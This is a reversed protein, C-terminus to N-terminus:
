KENKLSSILEELSVTATGNKGVVIGAARNAIRTAEVIDLGAARALTLAATFTDGAGCVDYVKREETSIHTRLEDNGGYISAGDKGRTIVVFSKLMEALEEGVTDIQSIPMDKVYPFRVMGCAEELNPTVIGVGAYLHVNTPKPDVVVLNCGDSESSILDNMAETEVTGKAYDSIIIGDADGTVSGLSDLVDRREDFNLNRANEYSVRSIIQGDPVLREKVTTVRSKSRVLLDSRIKRKELKAILTDGNFGTGVVGVPYVDAGLERLNAAVNAAGGPFCETKEHLVDVHPGEPSVGRSVGYKFVDL